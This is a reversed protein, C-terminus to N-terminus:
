KRYKQRYERPSMKTYRKFIKTFYSYNGYGVGDAVKNVPFDTNELLEKAIKVRELTIFELISMETEKKFLRMLYQANLHVQEAIEEIYITEQIHELVFRKVRHVVDNQRKKAEEAAIKKVIEAPIEAIDRKKLLRETLQGLVEGLEGYDIPKLIYDASGLKFARRIYEYEQHCTVYICEVAPYYIKVWEFLEVGNGQPMEIDCLMFDIKEKQLIEQAQQMSNATFVEDVQYTEWNVRRKLANVAIVEDDVLLAKM